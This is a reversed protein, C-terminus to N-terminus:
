QNVVEKTGSTKDGTSTRMADTKLSMMRFCHYKSAVIIPTTVIKNIISRDRRRAHM